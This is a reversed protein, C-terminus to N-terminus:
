ILSLDIPASNIKNIVELLANPSANSYLRPLKPFTKFHEIPFHRACRRENFAKLRQNNIEPTLQDRPLMCIYSVIRKDSPSYCKTNAHALKSNWLLFDGKNLKIFETNLNHEKLKMKEEDTFLYWQDKHERIPFPFDTILHSKPICVFGGKEVSDNTTLNILGQWTKLQYDSMHQDCHLFADIPTKQYNRKGNMYCFGDFSTVVSDTKWINKFIDACRYRLENQPKSFGIYQIMGGHLNPPYNAATRWDNDLKGLSLQKIIDEFELAYKDAEEESIYSKIVYYGNEKLQQEM